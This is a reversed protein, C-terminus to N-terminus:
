VLIMLKKFLATEVNPKTSLSAILATKIPTVQLDTVNNQEKVFITEVLRRWEVPVIQKALTTHQTAIPPATMASNVPASWVMGVAPYLAIMAALTMTSWTEMTAPKRMARSATVAVNCRATTVALMPIWPIEMMAPRRPVESATEVVKFRATIAAPIRTSLTAMMVFKLAPKYIAMVVVRMKAAVQVLMLIVQIQTTVPKERILSATAAFKMKAHQPAAMAPMQITIMVNSAVKVLVTAVFLAAIMSPYIVIM